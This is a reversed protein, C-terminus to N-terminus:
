RRLKSRLAWSGEAIATMSQEASVSTRSKSVPGRGLIIAQEGSPLFIATVWQPSLVTPMTSM